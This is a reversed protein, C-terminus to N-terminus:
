GMLDAASTGLNTGALAANENMARELHETMHSYRMAM